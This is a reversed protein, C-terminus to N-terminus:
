RTLLGAGSQYLPGKVVFEKLVADSADLVEVLFFSSQKANGILTARAPFRREDDAFQNTVVEGQFLGPAAEQFGAWVFTQENLDALTKLDVRLYFSGTHSWIGAATPNEYVEARQGMAYLTSGLTLTLVSILARVATLKM